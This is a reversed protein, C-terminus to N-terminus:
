SLGVRRNLSSRSQVQLGHLQRDIEDIARNFFSLLRDRATEEGERLPTALTIFAGDTRGSVIRTYAEYLKAKYANHTQLGGIRYWHWIMRKERANTITTEVVPFRDTYVVKSSVIKWDGGYPNVLRNNSSVAESGARQTHFYGIDLQISGRSSIYTDSLVLDPQHIIPTWTPPTAPQRRWPGYSDVAPIASAGQRPNAPSSQLQHLLLPFLAITVLSITLYRGPHSKLKRAYSEPASNDFDSRSDRWFGGVYFMSFIIIGFLLWGYLLHDAGAALEMGGFHGIMVILFARLSNAFIPVVLTFAFFILRKKLTAYTLYSYVVGLSVTAILYRVGSCEEVISWNGTPLVFQLGDQYIPIGTLRVLYVTANATFEMMIPILGQGVPAAFYLFLFPFLLYLFIKGGLVAWLLTQIISIMSLQMVVKADVLASVLWVCLFLLSALLALPEPAPHLRSLHGRKGWILWLTIPFVLFGHTFTENIWWVEAMSFTTQYFLAPVSLIIFFILVLSQHNASINTIVTLHQRSM